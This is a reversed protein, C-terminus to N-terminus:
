QRCPAGDITQAPRTLRMVAVDGFTFGPRDTTWDISELSRAQCDGSRLTITGWDAFQVDDLSYGAEFRGGSVSQKLAMRLGDTDDGDTGFLWAPRGQEDWTFWMLFSHARRSFAEPPHGQALIWGGAPRAVDFYTGARSFDRVPPAPDLCLPACDVWNLGSAYLLGLDLQGEGWGPPGQYRLTAGDVGDRSRAIQVAGWPLHRVDALDFAAGFRGGDIEVVDDFYMADNVLHGVGYLWRPGPEPDSAPAWTYWAMAVRQEGDQWHGPLDDLMELFVGQAPRAPDSWLGPRFSV